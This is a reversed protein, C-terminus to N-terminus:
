VSTPLSAVAYDWRWRALPHALSLNFKYAEKWGARPITQMRDILGSFLGFFLDTVRDGVPLAPSRLDISQVGNSSYIEFAGRFEGAQNDIMIDPVERNAVLGYAKFPAHALATQLAKIQNDVWERHSNYSRFPPLDASSSTM